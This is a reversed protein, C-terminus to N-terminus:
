HEAKTPPLEKVVLGELNTSIVNTIERELAVMAEAGFLPVHLM